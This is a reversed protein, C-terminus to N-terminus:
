EIIEGFIKMKRDTERTKYVDRSLKCIEIRSYKRFMNVEKPFRKEFDERRAYDLILKKFPFAKVAKEKQRHSFVSQCSYVSRLM